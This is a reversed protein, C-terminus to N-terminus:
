NDLTLELASYLDKRKGWHTEGQSVQGGLESMNERDFLSLLSNCIDDPLANDYIEIFSNKM